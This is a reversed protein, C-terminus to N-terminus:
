ITPGVGVGIPLGIIYWFVVLLIWAVGIILFYPLVMGQAQRIGIPRNKNLNYVNLFGIFIVFYAMLPTIGNTMSDGARMIIQAFPASINSQMLMPVAVPSFIMWKVGPTTVFLNSIAIMVIILIILPIGTFSLNELLNVLWVTIVLGINTMRFIAIFQSVVFILLFISGLKSFYTASKEVLDRDNKISKAGTGYAIGMIMFLISIMVTFGDQFYSNDGFLQKLYTAENMDLLLGSLPLNPIIAYIFLVVVIIFAILARKLGKNQKRETEVKIQEEEEFDTLQIEVTKDFDDKERYRGLKVSIFKEIVFTGIISFIISSAIIFFLNSTLAIHVNPDILHAATETYPMLAVEISGIFMTVGYTFSVGCFATVIGLLPNRGYSMYITAALPILMVYGVENILTSLTAVFILLFTLQSRSLKKIHRKTLAEIFGTGHAFSLGILSILLMGLPAFSLFNRMANSIIEKIGDFTAVNEVAVLTSELNLTTPNITRYTAQWQLLSFIWSLLIVMISLALFVTVPHLYFKKLKLKKRDKM